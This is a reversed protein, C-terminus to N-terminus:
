LRGALLVETVASSSLQLEVFSIEQPNSSVRLTHCNTLPLEPATSVINKYLIMWFLVITHENTVETMLGSSTRKPALSPLTFTMSMSLPWDILDRVTQLLATMSITTTSLAVLGPIAKAIYIQWNHHAPGASFLAYLDHVSLTSSHVAHWHFSGNFEPTSDSGLSRKHISAFVHCNQALTFIPWFDAEVANIDGSEAYHQYKCSLIPWRFIM